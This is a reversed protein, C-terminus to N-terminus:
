RTFIRERNSGSLQYNTDDVTANGQCRMLSASELLRLEDGHQCSRRYCITQRRGNTVSVADLEPGDRDVRLCGTLLASAEEAGVVLGASPTSLHTDRRQALGIM